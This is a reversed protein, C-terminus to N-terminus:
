RKGAGDSQERRGYTGPRAFLRNGADVWSKVRDQQAQLRRAEDLDLGQHLLVRSGVGDAGGGEAAHPLVDLVEVHADTAGQKAECLARTTRALESHSGKKAAVGAL